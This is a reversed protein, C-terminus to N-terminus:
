CSVIACTPLGDTPSNRWYGTVQTGDQRVYPRVYENKAFGAANTQGFGPAAPDPVDVAAGASQWYRQTLQPSYSNDIIRYSNTPLLTTKPLAFAAPADLCTTGVHQSPISM